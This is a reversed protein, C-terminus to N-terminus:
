PRWRGLAATQWKGSGGDFHELLFNDRPIDKRFRWNGFTFVIGQDDPEGVGPVTGIVALLFAVLESQARLHANLEDIFKVTAEQDVSGDARLLTEARTELVSEDAM